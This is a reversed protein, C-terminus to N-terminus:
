RGDTISISMTAASIVAENMGPVGSIVFPTIQQTSATIVMIMSVALSRLVSSVTAETFVRSKPVRPSRAPRKTTMPPSVM